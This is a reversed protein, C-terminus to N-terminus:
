PLDPRIVSNRNPTLHPLPFGLQQDYVERYGAIMSQLSFLRETRERGAHGANRAQQPDRLYDLIKCAMADPDAPPVLEGTVRREVLETNGGVDTAIVPLGSAMAELITNSIGEALSPLVFCDLGQLIDPIDAREGPMWTLDLCAAEHLLAQAQTRLPGDGVIILRLHERAPPEIRLARIFARVLTLQDKIEKMRGVTGVLWLSPDTFPCGGITGRRTAPAFRETDVGNYIQVVRDPSVGVKQTLYSALDRSVAVYKSVFPSYVRRIWQYKRSAGAADEVDRGHEGHVRVRVGAMWAPVTAELAALNRTHVIAPRLTRFTKYVTRYIKAGHGPPKHLAVFETDSRKVRLKFDTIETLAIVAHRYRDPDLHNILNVVGNELGGVDLRHIVHAIVPRTDCTTM